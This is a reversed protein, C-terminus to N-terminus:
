PATPKLSADILSVIENKSIAIDNNLPQLSHICHVNGCLVYWTDSALGPQLAALDAGQMALVFAEGPTVGKVDEALRVDPDFELHNNPKLKVATKLDRGTRILCPLQFRRERIIICQDKASIKIGEELNPFDWFALIEQSWTYAEVSKQIYDLEQQTTTPALLNRGLGIQGSFGLFPLLTPGIDLTSGAIDNRTGPTNSQFIMFTNRRNGQELMAYAGNPLAVHDSALVITTDQAYPSSRLRQVFRALLADSARIANLMSNSGDQYSYSSYSPSLHGTPHHTDLTLLFLGFPGGRKALEEFRQYALDLLDEDYLGWPTQAFNMQPHAKLIEQLGNVSDFGQTKFFRNKGAFRIDAGGMFELRYGARKLLNGLGLAGPLFADVGSMSNGDSYTILPIGSMCGVMGAITWTTGPTSCINTFSTADKELSILQPTLEPFLKQDFYTHEFSEAFIYVLNRPKAQAHIYPPAYYKFFDSATQHHQKWFKLFSLPTPNILLATAILLLPVSTPISKKRSWKGAFICTLTALGLAIIALGAALSIEYTFDAFGAGHLSTRWHYLVADNIGNGSLRDCINYVILWLFNLCLLISAILRLGKRSKSFFFSLWSLLSLFISLFNCAIFM